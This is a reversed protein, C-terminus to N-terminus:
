ETISIVSGLTNDEDQNDQHQTQNSEGGNGLMDPAAMMSVYDM